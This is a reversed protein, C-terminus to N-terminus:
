QLYNNDFNANVKEPKKRTTASRYKMVCYAAGSKTTVMHPKDSVM